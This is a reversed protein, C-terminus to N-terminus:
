RNKDCRRVFEQPSVEQAGKAIALKRKSAVLDYHPTLIHEQFWSRKLGLRLAFAHLKELGEQSQDDTSMHCSAGKHWGWEHLDDVLIM